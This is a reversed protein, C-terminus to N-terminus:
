AKGRGKGSVTAYAEALTKIAEARKKNNEPDTDTRIDDSVSDIAYMIADQIEQILEKNKM